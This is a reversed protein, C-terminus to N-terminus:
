DKQTRIFNGAADFIVDMGKVEAEYHTSGDAMKLEAAEKVKQGKYHEQLYKTITVPLSAISIPKETEKLAGSAEFSASMKQGNQKFNAEYDGNEAEWKADKITPFAKAFTAKVSAPVKSADMKQASAAFSVLCCLVAITKKMIKNTQITFTSHWETANRYSPYCVATEVNYECIM